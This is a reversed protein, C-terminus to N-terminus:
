AVVWAAEQDAAASAVESAVEAGVWVASAVELAAEAGVRVASAVESAAM